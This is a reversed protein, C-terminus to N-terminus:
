KRSKDLNGLRRPQGTYSEAGTVRRGTEELLCMAEQITQAKVVQQNWVHPYLEYHVVYKPM